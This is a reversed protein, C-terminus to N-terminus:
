MPTQEFNELQFVASRARWSPEEWEPMHFTSGGPKEWLRYDCYGATPVGASFMDPYHSVLYYVAAGGMSNGHISIRDRDIDFKSCVDEIAEFLDVEGYNQFLSGPGRGTARMVVCSLGMDHAIEAFGAVQTMRKGVKGDERIEDSVGPGVIVLLPKAGPLDDTACFSYPRKKGDMESTYVGLQAEFKKGKPKETGGRGGSRQAQASLALLISLVITSAIVGWRVGLRVISQTM